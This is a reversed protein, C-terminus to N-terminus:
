TDAGQSGTITDNGSTGDVILSVANAALMSANVVDDGTRANVVLADSFGSANVESGEVTVLAPLGTISYSKDSGQIQLNDAGPRGDVTVLDALGDPTGSGPLN